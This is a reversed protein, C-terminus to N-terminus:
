GHDTPSHFGIRRSQRNPLTKVARLMINTQSIHQVVQTRCQQQDLGDIVIKDPNVPRISQPFMLINAPGGVICIFVEEDTSITRQFEIILKQLERVTVSAANNQYEAADLVNAVRRQQQIHFDVGMRDLRDNRAIMENITEEGFKRGM